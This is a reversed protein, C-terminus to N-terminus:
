VEVEASGVTSGGAEIEVIERGTGPARAGGKVTVPQLSANLDPGNFSLHYADMNPVPLELNIAVQTAADEIYAQAVELHSVEPVAPVAPPGPDAPVGPTDIVKVKTIILFRDTM